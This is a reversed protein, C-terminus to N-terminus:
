YIDDNPRFLRQAFQSQESPKIVASYGALPAQPLLPPEETGSETSSDLGDSDTTGDGFLERVFATAEEDTPEPTPEPTPQATFEDLKQPATKGVLHPAIGELAVTGKSGGTETVRVDDSYLADRELHPADDTHGGRAVFFPDM